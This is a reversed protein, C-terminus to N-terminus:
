CVVFISQSWQRQINSTCHLLVRDKLVNEQKLSIFSHRLQNKTPNKVFNPKSFLKYSIDRKRYRIISMGTSLILEKGTEAHKAIFPANTIEGSPIKFKEQKIVNNLFDFSENDFATALYEIGLSKCHKNLKFHKETSLELAKLMEFQTQDKQLNQAQYSAIAAEKHVLKEAKFLQFKVIDAGALKAAEVMKFATEISGNHNVGVEAIIRIPM